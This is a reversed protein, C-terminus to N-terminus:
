LIRPPKQLSAPMQLTQMDWKELELVAQLCEELVAQAREADAAITKHVAVDTDTQNLCNQQYSYLDRLGILQKAVQAPCACQYILSQDIIQSLQRDSFVTKM